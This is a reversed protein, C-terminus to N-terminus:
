KSWNAMMRTCHEVMRNIQDSSQPRTESRQPGTQPTPQSTTEAFALSGALLLTAGIGAAIARSSLTM